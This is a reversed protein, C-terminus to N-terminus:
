KCYTDLFTKVVGMYEDTYLTCEGVHGGDEFLYFQKNESEVADFVTKAISYPILADTKTTFELVPVTTDKIAVTGDGDVLNFDYFYKVFTDCCELDEDSAGGGRIALSMSPLPCDLIAADIKENIDKNGLSVATCVGGYSGGWVIIRSDDSINAEVYNIIDLLDYQELVGYTTYDAMNEGSSRQDYTYVNYGANLFCEGAGMNTLRTCNQGHVLIVTDRNKDNKATIYEGPIIHGDLSSELDLDYVDYDTRYKDLKTEDIESNVNFRMYTKMFSLATDYTDQGYQKIFDLKKETTVGINVEEDTLSTSAAAKDPPTAVEADTATTSDIETAKETETDKDDSDGCASMGMTMAAIVICSLLRKYKRM